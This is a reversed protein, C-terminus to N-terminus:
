LCQKRHAARIITQKPRDERKGQLSGQHDANRFCGRPSYTEHHRRRCVTSTREEDCGQRLKSQHTDAPSKGEHGCHGEVLGIHRSLWGPGSGRLWADAMEISSNAPVRAAHCACSSAIDGSCWGMARNPKAWVNQRVPSAALWAAVGAELDRAGCDARRRPHQCTRGAICTFRNRM